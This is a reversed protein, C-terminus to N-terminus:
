KALTQHRGLGTEAVVPGSQLLFVFVFFQRRLDRGHRSSPLVLPALLRRFVSAHNVAATSAVNSSYSSIFVLLIADLKSANLFQLRTM